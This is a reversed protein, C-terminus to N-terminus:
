EAGPAYVQVRDYTQAFDLVLDSAAERATHGTGRHVIANYECSLCFPYRSDPRRGGFDGEKLTAVAAFRRRIFVRWTNLDPEIEIMAAAMLEAVMDAAATMGVLRLATQMANARAALSPKDDPPPM